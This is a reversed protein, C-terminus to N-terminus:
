AERSRENIWVSMDFEYPSKFASHSPPYMAKIEARGVTHVTIIWNSSQNDQRVEIYDISTIPIAVMGHDIYRM